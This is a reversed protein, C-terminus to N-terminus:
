EKYAFISKFVGENFTVSEVTVTTKEGFREDVICHALQIPGVKKYNSFYSESREWVGENESLFIYKTALYNRENLSVIIQHQPDVPLKIKHVFAGDEKELGLYEPIWGMESCRALPSSIPSNLVFWFDDKTKLKKSSLTKGSQQATSWLDEGDYGVDIKHGNEAKLCVRVLDPQKKIAVLDLVQGDPNLIKAHIRMSSIEKVGSEVMIHRRIIEQLSLEENELAFGTLCFPFFLLSLVFYSRMHLVKVNTFETFM